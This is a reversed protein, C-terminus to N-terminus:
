ESAGENQPGAGQGLIISLALLIQATYFKSLRQSEPVIWGFAYINDKPPEIDSVTSRRSLVNAFLQSEAPLAPSLRRIFTFARQAAEESAWADESSIGLEEQWTHLEQVEPETLPGIEGFHTRLYFASEYLRTGDPQRVWSFKEYYPAM